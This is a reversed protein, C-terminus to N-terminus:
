RRARYLEDYRELLPEVANDWNFNAEVFARAERQISTRRARDRFIDLIAAAFGEASDAILLHRGRLAGLGEAGLTTSVVVRGRAMGELVKLRTGSGARIPAVVIDAQAYYPTVDPVMGVGFIGEAEAGLASQADRLGVLLLRAAPYAARIKPFIDHAMWRAADANPPYRMQGVFLIVPASNCPEDLPRQALDTCNPIVLLRDRSIHRGLIARERESTVISLDFAPMERREFRAFRRANVKWWVDWLPNREIQAIRHYRESHLDQLSIAFIAQSSRGALYPLRGFEEHEIQVVDFSDLRRLIEGELERSGCWGNVLPRGRVFSTLAAVIKRPRADGPKAIVTFGEKRLAECCDPDDEYRLALAFTVQHRRALRRAIELTRIAGGSTPPYPIWTPAILIRM